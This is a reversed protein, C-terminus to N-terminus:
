LEDDTVESTRCAMLAQRARKLRSRVTNINIGLSAAIEDYRLGQIERLIICARQDPNLTALLSAVVGEADKQEISVRTNNPASETALAYDYNGRRSLEKAIRRYANIATNATIRYVWTTFSSQFRFSKLNRHIKLFVEQVVDQADDDSRLMRRAVSYVFGSTAKYIKEFAQMDGHSAQMIIERPIDQM